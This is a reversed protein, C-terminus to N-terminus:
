NFVEVESRRRLSELWAQVEQTMKEDIINARISEVAEEFDPIPNLGRDRAEPVFVDKYYTQTEEDSARIFQRFRVEFYRARLIRSRLTNRLDSMPLDTSATLGRSADDVEADTVEVNPFQAIQDEVLSRDILDQLVREDNRPMEGFVAALGREKRIDSSTLIKGNVVAEIRDIVEARLQLCLTLSLIQICVRKM